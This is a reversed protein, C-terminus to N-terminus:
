KRSRKWLTLTLGDGPATGFGAPRAPGPGAFIVRLHAGSLEYIGRQIRGDSLLYDIAKPERERDVTFRAQLVVTGAMSVTLDNGAAVRRGTRAVASPLSRGDHTFGLLSWEGELEPVPVFPLSATSADPAAGLPADARELTELAVGSGPRTAFAAPRRSGRMALCLTLTEGDIEFIGLNRQGAEPGETFILDLTHPRPEFDAEIRGGYAAGMGWATFRDGEIVMSGMPPVARGEVELAVARWTGHLQELPGEARKTM